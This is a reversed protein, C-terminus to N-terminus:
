NLISDLKKDRIQALIDEKSTRLNYWAHKLTNLSSYGSIWNTHGNFELQALCNNEKCYEIVEQIENVLENGPIMSVFLDPKVQYAM